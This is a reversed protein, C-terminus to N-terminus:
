RRIWVTVLKEEKTSGCTSLTLFKSNESISNVDIFTEISSSIQKEVWSVIDSPNTEYVEDDYRVKKVSILDYAYVISQWKFVLISHNKAFENVSYYDHMSGFMTGNKMNHGYLIVNSDDINNDCNMFISGSKNETGDPLHTLYYVNDNGQVVPYSISTDVIYIFSEPLLAINVANTEDSNEKINEKELMKEKNLIRADDITNFSEKDIEALVSTADLKIMDQKEKYVMIAENRDELEKFYAAFSTICLFVGLLLLLIPFCKSLKAFMVEGDKEM